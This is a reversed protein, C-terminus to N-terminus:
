RALHDAELAVRAVSLSCHGTRLDHDRCRYRTPRSVPVRRTTANEPRVTQRPVSLGHLGEAASLHSRLGRVRCDVGATARFLETYGRHRERVGPGADLSVHDAGSTDRAGFTWHDGLSYQFRGQSISRVLRPRANALTRLTSDGSDHRHSCLLGAPERFGSPLS